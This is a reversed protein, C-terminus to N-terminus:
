PPCGAEIWRRFRDVQEDPWAEDCPMSKSALRGHISGANVRVDDHSSLDFAFSMRDVDRPRFLPRIDREFSPKEADM